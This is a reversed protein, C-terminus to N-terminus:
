PTIRNMGARYPNLVGVQPKEFRFRNPIPYRVVLDYREGGRYTYDSNPELWEGDRIELDDSSGGDDYGQLYRSYLLFGPPRLQYTLSQGSLYLDHTLEKDILGDLQDLSGPYDDHQARYQELAIAVQMLRFLQRYRYDLPKVELWKSAWGSYTLDALYVGRASQSLSAAVIARPSTWSRYRDVAADNWMRAAAEFQAPDEIKLIPQLEDYTENVRWLAANKDLPLRLLRVTEPPLQREIAKILEKNHYAVSDLAVFREYQDCAVAVDPALPYNAFYLAIEALLEQDCQGSGVLRHTRGALEIHQRRYIEIETMSPVPAYNSALKWCLQLDRWAARADHEGLRMNSRLYLVKFTQAVSNEVDNDFAFKRDSAPQLWSRAPWYFKDCGALQFLRDYHPGQEDLWAALPPVEARSWAYEAADAPYVYPNFSVFEGEQLELPWKKLAWASIRNAVEASHPLAFQGTQAESDIELEQKLRIMEDNAYNGHWTELIVPIAANNKPTVGERRRQMLYGVYDVRGDTTLPDTLYTTERSVVVARAPGFSSWCIMGAFLLLGGGLIALYTKVKRSM